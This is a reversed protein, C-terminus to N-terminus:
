RRPEISVIELWSSYTDLHGITVTGRPYSSVILSGTPSQKIPRGKLSPSKISSM